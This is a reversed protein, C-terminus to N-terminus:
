EKHFNDELLPKVRERWAEGAETLTGDIKNHMSGHCKACMSVLNASVLALEHYKELPCCHHVTTAQTTKGYRVCERCLYDDRKLVVVRKRKWQPQKYYSM